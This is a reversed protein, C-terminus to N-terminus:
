SVFRFHLSGVLRRSPQAHRPNCRLCRLFGVEVQNLLPQHAYGLIGFGANKSDDVPDVHESNVDWENTENGEAHQDNLKQM